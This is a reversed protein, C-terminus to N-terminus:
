STRVCNFAASLPQLATTMESGKKLAECNVSDTLSCKALKPKHKFLAKSGMVFM